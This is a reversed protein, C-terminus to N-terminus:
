QAFEKLTNMLDAMLDATSDNGTSKRGLQVGEFLPSRSLGDEKAGKYIVDLLGNMEGDPDAEEISVSVNNLARVGDWVDFLDCLESSKIKALEALKQDGQHSLMNSLSDLKYSLDVIKGLIIRKAEAAADDYNKLMYQMEAHTWDKEHELSRLKAWSAEASEDDGMEAYVTMFKVAIDDTENDTLELARNYYECIENLYIQPSAAKQLAHFGFLVDAVMKFLMGDSPNERLVDRTYEKVDRSEGEIFVDYLKGKVIDREKESLVEHFSFLENLDIQLLRALPALLSADPYCMDKEWKNVAPASVGLYEAMQAQTMGLTKRKEQIVKGIM